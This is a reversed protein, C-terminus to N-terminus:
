LLTKKNKKLFVIFLALGFVTVAAGIGYGIPRPLVSGLGGDSAKAVFLFCGTVMTMFLAPILTILLWLKRRNKALYVSIAWLTVTALVQNAWAFYRWILQFSNADSISYLLILATVAFMPIAVFLRNKIPKQNFHMFDAIILRASRLATDGSTVAASIVGLITITVIIPSFWTDAIIGVIAAGNKDTVDAVSDPGFFCAAASAWILAIIGETIMAGYFIPRGQKENTMCRAMLPSQTAHFGSIAGCAISIFMMPFIPSNSADPHRNQMGSWLEPIEPKYVLFAIFIAAAMGLLLIGFIPYIKGIVKDIPLLTALLYYALIVAVWIYPSWNPTFHTNLLTAPTNVFVVGVLIMLLVTFGRMVQKAGKGLYTGHIEPLSAGKDRLSIMGALYDHVAGAFISGFVIWLLSATGFQAGMIAGIIPGVGAINLFQILYIRWPKMPVYDVGDAMSIAPTARNSDTGFVREVLKGYVFYGLLLAILAIFFTTM